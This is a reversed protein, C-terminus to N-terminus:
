YVNLLCLVEEESMEEGVADRDIVMFSPQETGDDGIPTVQKLGLVGGTIVVGSYFDIEQNDIAQQRARARASAKFIAEGARHQGM